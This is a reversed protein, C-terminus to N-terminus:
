PLPWVYVKAVLARFNAPTVRTFSEFDKNHLGTMILGGADRQAVAHMAFLKAQWTPAYVVWNGLRADEFTAGERAVAYAVVTQMPDLGAPAPPIFPAMSGTGLIPFAGNGARALADAQNLCEVREPLGLELVRKTRYSLVFLAVLALALGAVLLKSKM